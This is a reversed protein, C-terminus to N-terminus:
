VDGERRHKSREPSFGDPYREILKDINTMAVDGLSWGMGTAYEALMWLIDGLERKAHDADFTHGQLSKQYMGLLEGVESAMGYLSHQIIHYGAGITRAADRQYADITYGTSKLAEVAESLMTSKRKAVMWREHDGDKDAQAMDWEAKVIEDTLYEMLKDM